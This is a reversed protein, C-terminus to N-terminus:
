QKSNNKVIIKTKSGMITKGKTPVPVNNRVHEALHHIRRERRFPRKLFSVKRGPAQRQRSGNNTTRRKVSGPQM